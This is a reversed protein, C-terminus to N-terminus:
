DFRFTSLIQDFTKKYRLEQGEIYKIWVTYIKNNQLIHVEKTTQYQAGFQMSSKKEVTENGDLNISKINNPDTFNDTSKIYELLPKTPQPYPQNLNFGMIAGKKIVLYPEEGSAITSIYDPSELTLRYSPNPYSSKKIIWDPPYKFETENEDDRYIKWAATPDPTPTSFPTIQPSVPTPGKPSFIKAGALYGAGLVAVLTAIILPILPIKSDYPPTSSSQASAQPAPPNESLPTQNTKEKDM